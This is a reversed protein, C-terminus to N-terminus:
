DCARRAQPRAAPPAQRVRCLDIQAEAVRLALAQLVPDAGDGAIRTALARVEAAAKPDALVPLNL